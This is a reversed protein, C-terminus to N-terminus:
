RRVLLGTNRSVPSGAARLGDQVDQKVTEEAALHFGDMLIKRSSSRKRQGICAESLEREHEEPTSRLQAQGKVGKMWMTIKLRSIKRCARSTWESSEASERKRGM